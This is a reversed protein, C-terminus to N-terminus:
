EKSINQGPFEVFLAFGFCNQLPAGHNHITTAYTNLLDPSLFPQDWSELRHHHNLYVQDLVTNFILCLSSPNRGFRTVMDSYRCPYALRKLLICLGEIGTCVSGQSCVIKEPIQLYHMLLQLDNKAFRLETGCEEDDWFILNFEEFKWYLFRDQIVTITCVCSNSM